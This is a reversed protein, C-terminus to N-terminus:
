AKKPEKMAVELAAIRAKLDENEKHLRTFPKAGEAKQLWAKAKSKLDFLGPINTCVNDNLDALQELSRCKHFRLEEIQSKSIWVVESLPTGVIQEEDGAKFMEYAKRFKFHDENRTPRRIINSSNGATVLEVYEVDKFVPRGATASAAEDKKAHTYFKAYVGKTSQDDSFDSVNFEAEM